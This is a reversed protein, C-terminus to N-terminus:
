ANLNGNTTAYLIAGSVVAVNTTERGLMLCLKVAWHKCDDCVVCKHEKHFHGKVTNAGIKGRGKKSFQIYHM